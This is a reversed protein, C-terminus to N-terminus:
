YHEIKNEEKEIKKFKAPLKEAQDLLRKKAKPAIWDMNVRQQDNRRLDELPDPPNNVFSLFLSKQHETRFSSFDDSRM